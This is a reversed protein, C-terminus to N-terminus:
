KKGVATLYADRDYRLWAYSLCMEAYSGEGFTITTPTLQVGNIFPQNAASNDYDCEISVQDDQTFPVGTGPAYFYDMQWEFNWHPVDVLCTQAGTSDTMTVSLETGLHHMHPTEGVFEGALFGNGVASVRSMSYQATTSYSADGPPINFMYSLLGNRRIIRNPQQGDPLTWFQVKSLDPPVADGPLLNQTNYHVQMLVATGADVLVADGPEFVATQSGPRWSFLNYDGAILGATGGVGCNWGPNGDSGEMKQAQAMGAAPITHIQVHHVTSAQGPVINVATIYTDKDFTGQMLFCRYNDNIDRPTTYATSMALQITPAGIDVHAIQPPKYDAINGEPFGAAHWKSVLDKTDDSLAASARMPHCSADALWPPMTGNAVATSVASAEARVDAWNDLPFPAIGGTYHCSTCSADLVARVDKQYTVETSAVTSATGSRHSSSGDSGGCSTLLATMLCGFGLAHFCRYSSHM